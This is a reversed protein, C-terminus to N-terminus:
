MKPKDTQERSRFHAFHAIFPLTEKREKNKQPQPDKSIAKPTLTQGTSHKSFDKKRV